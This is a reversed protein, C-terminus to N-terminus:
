GADHAEIWDWEQDCLSAAESAPVTVLEADDAGSRAAVLPGIPFPGANSGPLWWPRDYTLVVEHVGATLTVAGVPNSLEANGEIVSRGEYAFEGDVTVTLRGPWSGALWLDYDGDAPVTLARTISGDVTPVIAGGAAVWGDPVPGEGLPVRSVDARRAAILRGGPVSAALDAVSSCIPVPAPQDESGLQLDRVALPLSRDRQWVDYWTGARLLRYGSPPRSATPARRLVLLDYRDVAAPDFDSIDAAGGKPLMAGNRLPIPNVRLESAAEADMDRLFHRAGYVAYETMLTPGQGALERGITALEAQQDRPALWVQTYALGNSWLVGVTIATALAGALIRVSIRASGALVGVGAFALALVAPSAVALTKGALWAGGYATSYAVALLSAGSWLPLAWQGRRITGVLGVLAASVAFAILVATAAWSVPGVRFDGAPWIGVAQWTSLPGILNGIDPIPPFLRVGIPDLRLLVLLAGAAAASATAIVAIRGSVPWRRVWLLLGIATALPLVYGLASVGGIAMMAAAGFIAPLLVLGRDRAVQGAKAGTVAIMAILPALVVEKIGGWQAYALYTAALASVAAAGAASGGHRFLPRLVGFVLVALLGAMAAMFPQLFWAGDLGALVAVVGFPAFLGTPYGGVHPEPHTGLNADILRDFTSTVTDPLTRGSALLHDAFGLWSAGDDLKVWGAWTATGSALVAAGSALLVVVFVVAPWSLRLSLIPRERRSLYRHLAWTSWGAASVALMSATTAPALVPVLTTLNGVVVLVAFGSVMVVGTGSQIRTWGAVLWGAGWCMALLVAPGVIWAHLLETM